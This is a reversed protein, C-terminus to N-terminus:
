GLHSFSETQTHNTDMLYCINYRYVALTKAHSFDQDELLPIDTLVTGDAYFYYHFAGDVASGELDVPSVKRGSYVQRALSVMEESAEGLRRHYAATNRFDTYTFIEGMGVNDNAYIYCWAASFLLVVCLALAVAQVWRSHLFAM